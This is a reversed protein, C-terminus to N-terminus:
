AAAPRRRRYAGAVSVATVAAFAATEALWWNGLHHSSARCGIGLVIGFAGAVVSSSWSHPLRVFRSLLAGAGVVALVVGVFYLADWWVLPADAEEAPVPAAGLVVVAVIWALTLTGRDTAARVLHEHARALGSTAPESASPAEWLRELEAIDSAREETPTASM